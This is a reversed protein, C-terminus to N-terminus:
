SMGPIKLKTKRLIAPRKATDGEMDQEQSSKKKRIDRDENM